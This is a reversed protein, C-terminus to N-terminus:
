EKDTPEKTAPEEIKTDANSQTIENCVRTIENQLKDHADRMLKLRAQLQGAEYSLKGLEENLTM